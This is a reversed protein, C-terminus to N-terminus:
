KLSEKTTGPEEPPQVANQLHAWKAHENRWIGGGFLRVARRMTAAKIRSTGNWESIAELLDDAEAREIPLQPRGLLTAPVEKPHEHLDDRIPIMDLQRDIRFALLLGKYAPDHILAGRRYTGRLPPGVVRWLLRPISAGDFFWGTAPAVYCVNRVAVVYPRDLVLDETRPLDRYIPPGFEAIQYDYSM